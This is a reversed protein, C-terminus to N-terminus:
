PEREMWNFQRFPNLLPRKKPEPPLLPQHALREENFIRELRLAELSPETEVHHPTLEPIRLRIV